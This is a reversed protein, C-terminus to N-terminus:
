SNTHLPLKIAVKALQMLTDTDNLEPKEYLCLALTSLLTGTDKALCLGAKQLDLGSVALKLPIFDTNLSSCHDAHYDKAPINILSLLSLLQLANRATNEGLESVLKRINRRTYTGFEELGQIHRTVGRITAGDYKLRNLLMRAKIPADGEFCTYFLLTLLLVRADSHKALHAANDKWSQSLTTLGPFIIQNLGTQWLLFFREPAPSELIKNVEAQIREMSVYALDRSLRQIAAFTKNEIDFALQASFRVARLMRLADESFRKVPDGVSRIIKKHIDDLGGFPDVLGEKPHYAMANMTFDRRALDESLSETFDVHDPRRHDSYHAERRWTTVEVLTGDYSVTVTGHKLGTDYTTKFLAKVADPTANTTIDWDKPVKQTLMDRVCGGVLHASFGSKNMISIISSINRPLIFLM